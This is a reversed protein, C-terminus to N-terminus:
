KKFTFTENFDGNETEVTLNVEKGSDKINFNEVGFMVTVFGSGDVSRIIRDGSKRYSVTRKDNEFNISFGTSSVATKNNENYVDTIDLVFFDAEFDHTYEDLTEFYSIAAPMASMILAAVSLAALAEIYTFGGNKGSRCVFNRITKIM